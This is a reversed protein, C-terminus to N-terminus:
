QQDVLNEGLDEKGAMQNQNLRKMLDKEIRHHPPM